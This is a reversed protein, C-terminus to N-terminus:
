IERGGRLMAATERVREPPHVTAQEPRQFEFALNVLGGAYVFRPCPCSGDLCRPHLARAHGCTCRSLNASICFPEEVTESADLIESAESRRSRSELLTLAAVSAAIVAGLIMIIPIM